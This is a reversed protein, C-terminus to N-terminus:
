ETEIICALWRNDYKVAGYVSGRNIKCNKPASVSKLSPIFDSLEVPTGDLPIKISVRFDGSFWEFDWRVVERGDNYAVEEGAPFLALIKEDNEFSTFLGRPNNKLNYNDGYGLWRGIKKVSYDMGLKYLKNVDGTKIDYDPFPIHFLVIDKNEFPFRKIMAFPIIKKNPDVYVGPLKPPDLFPSKGYKYELEMATWGYRFEQAKKRWWIRFKRKQMRVTMGVARYIIYDQDYMRLKMRHRDNFYNEVTVNTGFKDSVWSQLWNGDTNSQNYVVRRINDKPIKVGTKLTLSGDKNYTTTGSGGGTNGGPNGTGGGGADPDPIFPKDENETSIIGQPQIRIFLGKGDPLPVQEGHSLIGPDYSLYNEMFPLQDVASYQIVGGDVYRYVWASVQIERDQNLVSAFYQDIIISDEPEYVLEEEIIERLEEDTFERLGQDILHQRLSVFESDGSRTISNPILSFNDDEKIKQVTTFLEDPSSFVLKGSNVAIETGDL